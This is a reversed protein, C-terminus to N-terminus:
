QRQYPQPTLNFQAPPPSPPGCNSFCYVTSPPGGGIAPPAAPALPSLTGQRPFGPQVCRPPCGATPWPHGPDIELVQAGAPVATLLLGAFGSLLGRPKM